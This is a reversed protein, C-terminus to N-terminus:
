VGIPSRLTEEADRAESNDQHNCSV